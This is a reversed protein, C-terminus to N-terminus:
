SLIHWYFKKTTLQNKITTSNIYWHRWLCRSSIKVAEINYTIFNNLSVGHNVSFCDWGITSVEKTGKAETKFLYFSCSNHDHNYMNCRWTVVMWILNMDFFSLPDSGQNMKVYYKRLSINKTRDLLSKYKQPVLFMRTLWSISAISRENRM